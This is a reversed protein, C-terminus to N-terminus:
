FTSMEFPYGTVFVFMKDMTGHFCIDTLHIGGTRSNAIPLRPQIKIMIGNPLPKDRVWDLM